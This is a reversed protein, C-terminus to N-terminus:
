RPQHNNTCAVRPPTPACRRQAGVRDDGAIALIGHFHNPMVVFEDLEINPRVQMTQLWEERVINGFDNLRVEGNEIKGFLCERHVAVMTVYYAGAHSYDYGSLRISRRHHKTPDYNMEQARVRIAGM